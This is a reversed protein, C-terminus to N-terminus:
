YIFVREFWDLSKYFNESESSSEFNYVHASIGSYREQNIKYGNFDCPTSARYVLCEDLLNNWEEDYFEEGKLEALAKVYDGLEYFPGNSNRTYKQLSSVKPLTFPTFKMRCYDALVEIKSMDTVAITGARYYYEEDYYRFFDMAAGKLDPKSSALYPLVLQYPNGDDCVETAYGVYYDCKNRLQYISEINSMYCSDFWIYDFSKDPLADALENVNIQEWEPDSTTKDQGFSYTMASNETFSRSNLFPQSGTSHSWFFLGMSKAKYNQIVFDIIESIRIPSLSPIENDYEKITEWVYADYKKTLKILSIQPTDLFRGTEKDIQYATEFILINNKKLDINAAAELMERKDYVLNARLSNTAIAYILITSEALNGENPKDPDEPNVFPSDSDSQECSTLVGSFGIFLTVILFYQILKKM